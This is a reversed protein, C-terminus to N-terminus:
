FKSTDYNVAPKAVTARAELGHYVHALHGHWLIMAVSRKPWAVWKLLKSNQYTM